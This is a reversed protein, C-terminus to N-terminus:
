QQAEQNTKHIWVSPELTDQVPRCWCDPSADHERGTIAFQKAARRRLEVQLGALAAGKSNWVTPLVTGDISIQWEDSSVTFVHNM